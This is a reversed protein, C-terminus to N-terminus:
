FFTPCKKNEPKFYQDIDYLARVSQTKKQLFSSFDLVWEKGFYQSYNFFGARGSFYNSRKLRIFFIKTWIKASKVM